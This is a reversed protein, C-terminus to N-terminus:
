KWEPKPYLPPKTARTPPWVLEYSGNQWQSVTGSARALMGDKYSIKGLLTTFEHSAIYDRIAKRDLGANEVAEQLVQLSSRVFGTTDRDPEKNFRKMYADRYNQQMPGESPTWTGFGIMGNAADGFRQKFFPFAPGIAVYFLKPNFGIEKTQTTMLFSEAPYTLGVLADPAKAKFDKLVVSLDKTNAPFSKEGVVSIGREKLMPVMLNYRELGFLDDMYGIAVTKVHQAAMLDVLARTSQESTWSAGFFYPMKMDLLKKPSGTTSLFPYGYKNALPGVAFAFNSGWPPLILDVKDDAMLKEYTRVSTEVDSQDDYGILEVKRKQGKVNLGDAANAQESWLTYNAEVSGQAAVANPGTRAMSYGIRVPADEARLPLAALALLLVLGSGLALIPSWIFSAARPALTSM